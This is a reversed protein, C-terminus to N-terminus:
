RSRGFMGKSRGGGGARDVQVVACAPHLAGDTLTVCSRLAGPRSPMQQASLNAATLALAVASSVIISKFRQM